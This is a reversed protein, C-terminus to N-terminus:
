FSLSGESFCVVIQSITQGLDTVILLINEIQNITVALQDTDLRLQTLQLLLM